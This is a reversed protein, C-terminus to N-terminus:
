PSDHSSGWTSTDSRRYLGLLTQFAIGCTSHGVKRDDFYFYRLDYETEDAIAREGLLIAKM